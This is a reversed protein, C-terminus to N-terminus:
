VKRLFFNLAAIGFSIAAMGPKGQALSNLGDATLFGILFWTIAENNELYWQRFKSM